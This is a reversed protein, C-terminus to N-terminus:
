TTPHHFLRNLIVFDIIAILTRIPRELEQGSIASRDVEMDNASQEQEKELMTYREWFVSEKQHHHSGRPNHLIDDADGADGASDTDSTVEADNEGQELITSSASSASSIKRIKVGKTKKHSDIVYREVMIGVERLSVTVENLSRSLTNPAKPWERKSFAEGTVARCLADSIEDSIDSINDFYCIYNHMMLQALQVRNKTLSFTKAPSPDVLSRILEQATTKAAKPEGHLMWVPKSIGPYFLSVVYCKLLLKNDEDKVNILEIFRDFIDNSYERSPYVQPHETTPYRRFIIPAQEIIWGNDATVKVAYCEKNALDYYITHPEDPNNAVRLDLNKRVGDFDARAKLINLINTLIEGSLIATNESEQYFTKCLWNKFRSGKLPLTEIHGDIKVTAYPNGFQDQFFENCQSEVLEMARQAITKQEEQVEFNSHPPDDVDNNVRDGGEYGYTLIREVNSELVDSLQQIHERKIGKKTV